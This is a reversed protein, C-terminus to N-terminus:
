AWVTHVLITSMWEAVASILRPFVFSSSPLLLFWLAFIYHECRSRLAAMFVNSRIPSIAIGRLDDYSIPRTNCDKIMPLPVMYSCKFGAPVYSSLLILQFYKSLVMSLVPHCFLLHKASLGVIDAAKGRELDLIV